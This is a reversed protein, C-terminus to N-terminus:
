KKKVRQELSDWSCAHESNAELSNATYRYHRVEDSYLSRHLQVPTPSTRKPRLVIALPIYACNHKEFLGFGFQEAKYQRHRLVPVFYSCFIGFRLWKQDHRQFFKNLDCVKWNFFFLVLAFIWTIQFLKRECM